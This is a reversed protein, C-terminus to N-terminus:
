TVASLCVLEVATRNLELMDQGPESPITTSTNTGTRCWGGLQSALLILNEVSHFTHLPAKMPLKMCALLPQM